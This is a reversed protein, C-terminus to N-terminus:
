RALLQPAIRDACDTRACLRCGPGAAVERRQHTLYRPESGPPVLLMTAEVRPPEDMARPPAQTATVIALTERRGPQAITAAFTDGPMRLAAFLPLRACPSVQRPIPWDPLPRRLLLQGAGNVSMLGPADPAARFALRRMLAPVDVDQDAAHRVLDIPATEDPLAIAADAKWRDLWDRLLEAVAGRAGSRAIIAAVAVRDEALDPFDYRAEDLLRAVEEEPTVTPTESTVARDFYDTLAGAVESLRQSEDHIARTFRRRQPPDIDDVSALISATSRIATISTLMEHLDRQLVPDHTLRDSLAEIAGRQAHGTRDLTAIVQAWGPYRGVFEEVADLEPAHVPLDAAAERLASVLGLAAGEGLDAPALDLARALASLVRGAVPRRNHEILNLYSPSIDAAKALAAQTLGLTRRRERIRVGAFSRSM